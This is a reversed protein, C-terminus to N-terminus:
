CPMELRIVEEVEEASPASMPGQAADSEKAVLDLRAALASRMVEDRATELSERLDKRIAQSVVTRRRRRPCTSAASKGLSLKLLVVVTM